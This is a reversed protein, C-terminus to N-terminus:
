FNRSIIRHEAEKCATTNRKSEGGIPGYIRPPQVGHAPRSLALRGALMFRRFSECFLFLLLLQHQSVVNRAMRLFPIEIYPTGIIKLLLSM